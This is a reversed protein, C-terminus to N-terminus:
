YIKCVLVDFGSSCFPPFPLFLPLFTHSCRKFNNSAVVVEVAVMTSHHYPHTIVTLM